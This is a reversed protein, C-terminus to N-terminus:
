CRAVRVSKVIQGKEIVLMACKQVSSWEQIKVSFKKQVLLDLGKENQSYLKLADLFLLHNIKEQSGSFEYAAMRKLWKADRNHDVSESWINEWLNKPEECAEAYSFCPSMMFNLPQLCTFLQMGGVLCAQPPM